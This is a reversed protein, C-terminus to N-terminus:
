KEEVEGPPTVHHRVFGCRECVFVEADLLTPREGRVAVIALTFQEGEELDDPIPTAWRDNACEPCNANEMLSRLADRDPKGRQRAM